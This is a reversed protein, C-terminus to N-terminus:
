TQLYHGDALHIADGPIFFNTYPGEYRTEGVMAVARIVHYAGSVGLGNITETFVVTTTGNGISKASTRITAAEFFVSVDSGEPNVSTTLEVSSGTILVTTPGPGTVAHISVSLAWLVFTALTWRGALPRM